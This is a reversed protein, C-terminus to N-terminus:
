NMRWERSWKVSHPSNKGQCCSLGFYGRHGATSSSKWGDPRQWSYCRGRVAGDRRVPRLLLDERAGSDVGSALERWRMAFQEPEAEQGALRTILSNFTTVRVIEEPALGVMQAFRSNMAQIVHQADFLVVGEELWEIV